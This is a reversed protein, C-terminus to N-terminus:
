KFPCNRKTHGPQRCVSCKRITKDKEQEASTMRSVTKNRKASVGKVTENQNTDPNSTDNRTNGNNFGFGLRGIPTKPSNSHQQQHSEHRRRSLAQTPTPIKEFPNLVRKSNINGNPKFKYISTMMADCGLLCGEYKKPLGAPPDNMEVKLLQVVKNKTACISCCKDTILANSVCSPLWWQQKCNPFRTCGFMYCPNGRSNVLKLRMRGVCADNPCDCLTLQTPSSAAYPCDSRTCQWCFMPRILGNEDSKEVCRPCFQSKKNSKPNIMLALGQNCIPCKSGVTSNVSHIMWHKKGWYHLTISPYPCEENSCSVYINCDDAFCHQISGCSCILEVGLNNALDVTRSPLVNSLHQLLIESNNELRRYFEQYETLYKRLVEDKTIQGKVIRKFDLEMDARFTPQHLRVGIEDYTLILARGLESSVLTNAEKVAYERKQIMSIHQAITADTGIGNEDMKSILDAESLKSPQRTENEVIKGDFIEFIEGININPLTKDSVKIYPFVRLFGMDHVSIGELLFVEQLSETAAFHIITKSISTDPGISAIFSRLIFEFVNREDVSLRTYDPSRVPHIPPHSEDTNKGSRPLQFKEEIRWQRVCQGVVLDDCFFNLLEVPSNEGWSDTETRPYSIFGNNYLSEAIVMVTESALKFKSSCNKLLTVTTLPLPRQKNASVHSIDIVEVSGKQVIKEFILFAFFHEFVRYRQWQLAFQVNNILIDLSIIWYKESVFEDRGKDREYVFGLTPFQCPGYSVVQDTRFHKQAFLTLFRSFSAGIRLDLERRCEVVDLLLPNLSTLTEMARLIERPSVSSFIARQVILKSNAQVCIDKIEYAIAEGENDNDTWLVLRDMDKSAKILMQSIKKMEPLLNVETECTYLDFPNTQSWSRYEEVFELKNLHGLVSTFSINHTEGISDVYNFVFLRNYQSCTEKSEYTSPKSLVKAIAKAVSPKEAVHLCKIVM